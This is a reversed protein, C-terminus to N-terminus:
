FQKSMSGPSPGPPERTIWYSALKKDFKLRLLDKGLARLILGMPVVAGYYLVGMVIPNILDHLVLGFKFWLLYPPRLWQPVLFACALLYGSVALAWWRILGGHVLPAFAIVAFVVSFLIGFNRDSGVTVKRYSHTSENTAM